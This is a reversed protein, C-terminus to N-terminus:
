GRAAICATGLLSLFELERADRAPAEELTRLAELGRTLHNIAEINAFREHSRQGARLWYIVAREALGAETFHQALLEPQTEASLPFRAELAEAVQRHLERRRFEDPASRVAEELLAHKFRYNGGSRYVIEAGELKDLELRLTPEDVGSVAALMEYQFERGLTAAFHAVEPNSSMRDLRAMVLQQLTAPMERARAQEFIASERAMRSFEEVLLPVGNTRQYIQEVLSDPLTTGAIKRMLESVQRRTLRNLALSTQHGMAPWPTYFEPRFTLVTLICDHLGEAIFGELFELSSADIWHLDEIVFLIPHL